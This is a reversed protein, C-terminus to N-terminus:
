QYDDLDLDGSEYLKFLVSLHGLFNGFKWIAKQTGDSINQNKMKLMLILYVTNLSTEIDNHNMGSKQRILEIDPLIENYLQTYESNVNKSILLLHFRNLEDILNLLFQLHGEKQKNEKQMMLILNEYWEKIEKKKQLDVKYNNILVDEIKNIDFSLARISDEIQWMYLLYEGINSKRKELSIIM